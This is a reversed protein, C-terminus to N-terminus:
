KPLTVKYSSKSTKTPPFITSTEGTETDTVTLGSTPVTKLFEKRAKLADAAEKAKQELDALVPDGCKSFDYSSGTEACEFKVGRSTTLKDKEGETHIRERIYGLLEIDPEIKAASDGNIQKDLAAMFKVTEIYEFLGNGTDFIRQKVMKHFTAANTKSLVPIHDPSLIIESSGMQEMESYQAQNIDHYIDENRM